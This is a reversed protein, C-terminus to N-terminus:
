HRSCGHPQAGVSDKDTVEPFLIPVKCPETKVPKTGEPDVAKESVLM